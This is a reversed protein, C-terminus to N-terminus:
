FREGLRGVDSDRSHVLASSADSKTPRGTSEVAGTMEAEFGGSWRPM